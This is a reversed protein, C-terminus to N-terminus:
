PKCGNALGLASCIGNKTATNALVWAAEFAQLDENQQQSTLDNLVRRMSVTVFAEITAPVDANPDIARAQAQTCDDPLGVRNCSAKNFALRGRELRLDQAATTTFNYSGAFAFPAAALVAFLALPIRRM